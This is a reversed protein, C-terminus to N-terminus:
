NDEELIALYQTLWQLIQPGARRHQNQQVPWTAAKVAEPAPAGVLTEFAVTIASAIRLNEENQAIEEKSLPQFSRRGNSITKGLIQALWRWQDTSLDKKGLIGCLDRHITDVGPKRGRIEAIERALADKDFALRSTAERVATETREIEAEQAKQVADRFQQEKEEATTRKAAAVAEAVMEEALAKTIHEGAQARDVAEERIPEPVYPGSLLYLASADIPLDRVTLFKGFHEAVAMFNRATQDDWSFERGLWPLWEGRSCTGRVTILRRGIEIIDSAVRKGLVRIAEAHEARFVDLNAPLTPEAPLLPLRLPEPM